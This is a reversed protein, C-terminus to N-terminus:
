HAGRLYREDDQASRHATDGTTGGAELATLLPCSGDAYVLWARGLQDGALAASAGPTVTLTRVEPRAAIADLTRDQEDTTMHTGEPNHPILTLPTALLAALAATM